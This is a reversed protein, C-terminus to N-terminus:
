GGTDRAIDDAAAVTETEHSDKIDYGGDATGKRPTPRREYNKAKNAAKADTTRGDEAGHVDGFNGRGLPATAEDAKEM